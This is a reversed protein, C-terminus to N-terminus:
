CIIITTSIISASPAFINQAYKATSQINNLQNNDFVKFFSFVPLAVFSGVSMGTNNDKRHITTSNLSFDVCDANDDHVVFESESLAGFKIDDGLFLMNISEVKIYGSGSVCLVAGFSSFVLGAIFFLCILLTTAKMFGLKTKSLYLM